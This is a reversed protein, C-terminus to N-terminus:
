RSLLNLLESKSLHISSDSHHIDSLFRSTLSLQKLVLSSLQISFNETHNQLKHWLLEIFAVRAPLSLNCGFNTVTMCELDETYIEVAAVVRDNNIIATTESGSGVLTDPAFRQLDHIVIQEILFARINSKDNSSKANLFKWEQRQPLLETPLPCILCSRLLDLYNDIDISTWDKFAKSFYEKAKIFINSIVRTGEETLSVLVRRKDEPFSKRIILKQNELKAFIQSVESLIYPLSYTLESAAISGGAQFTLWLVQIISIPYGTNFATDALIGMSQGLRRIERLLPEMGTLFLAPKANLSDSTKRLYEILSKKQIDSLSYCCALVEKNRQEIDHNFIKLGKSTITVLKARKDQKFQTSKVLGKDELQAINRSISSKDLYLKDILDKSLINQCNVLESLIQSESTSLPSGFHNLLALLRRNFQLFLNFFAGSQSNDYTLHFNAPEITSMEFVISAEYYFLRDYM